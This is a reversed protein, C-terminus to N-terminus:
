ENKPERVGSPEDGSPIKIGDTQSSKIPKGADIWEEYKLELPDVQHDVSEFYDNEEGLKVESAHFDLYVTKIVGSTEEVPPYIWGNLEFMISWELRRRSAADGDISEDPNISVITVQVDREFNVINGNLERITTNFSPRFYPLIQEIIQYMDDQYRTYIGLEFRLKYPAPNAQSVLRGNVNEIATRNLMSTAFASNYELDILNLYMRPLINEVKAIDTKNVSLRDNLKVIFHEKSANTIPVKQHRTVGDITRMVKIRSFLDGMLVIYKRISSNYSSEM